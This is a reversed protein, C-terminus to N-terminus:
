GNFFDEIGILHCFIKVKNIYSALYKYFQFSFVHVVWCFSSIKRLDPEQLYCIYYSIQLNNFVMLM